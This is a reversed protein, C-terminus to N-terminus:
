ERSLLWVKKYQVGWELANDVNKIYLDIHNGTVAGGKDQVIRYGIDEIYVWSGVPLVDWDTAITLNEEVTAGSATIGYGPHGPTKGTSELGATYATIKFEGLYQFENNSLSSIDIGGTSNNSDQLFDYASFININTAKGQGQIKFKPETNKYAYIVKGGFIFILVLIVILIVTLIRNILKLIM